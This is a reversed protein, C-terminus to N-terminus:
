DEWEDWEDEECEHFKAQASLYQYINDFGQKKAEQQWKIQTKELDKKLFDLLTM